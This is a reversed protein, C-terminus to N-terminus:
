GSAPGVAADAPVFVDVWYEQQTQGEVANDPDPIRQAAGAEVRTLADAFYKAGDGPGGKAMRHYWARFLDGELGGDMEMSLRYEGSGIVWLRFSAYGNRAATLTVGDDGAVPFSRKSVDAPKVAGFPDRSVWENGAEMHWPTKKSSM